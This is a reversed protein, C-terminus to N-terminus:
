LSTGSYKMEFIFSFYVCWCASSTSYTGSRPFQKVVARCSHLQSYMDWQPICAMSSLLVTGWRWRLERGQIGSLVPLYWQLLLCQIPMGTLRCTPPAPLLYQTNVMLHTCKINLFSSASTIMWHKWCIIHSCLNAFGQCGFNIYSSCIRREAFTQFLWYIQISM